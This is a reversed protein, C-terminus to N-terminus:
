EEVLTGKQAALATARIQHIFHGWILGKKNQLFLRTPPLVLDGSSTASWYIVGNEDRFEYIRFLLGSKKKIAM